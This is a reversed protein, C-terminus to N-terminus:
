FVVFALEFFIIQEDIHPLDKDTNAKLPKYTTLRIPYFRLM